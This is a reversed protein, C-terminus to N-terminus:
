SVLESTCNGPLRGSIREIRPRGLDVADRPSNADVIKGVLEHVAQHDAILIGTIKM